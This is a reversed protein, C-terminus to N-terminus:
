LGLREAVRTLIVAMACSDHENMKLKEGLYSPHIHDLKRVFCSGARWHPDMSVLWSGDQCGFVDEAGTMKALVFRYATGNGPQADVAVVDRHDGTNGSTLSRVDLKLWKDVSGFIKETDHPGIFEVYLERLKDLAVSM